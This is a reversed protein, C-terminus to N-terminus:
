SAAQQWDQLSVANNARQFKGSSVAAQVGALYADQARAAQQNPAVQVRMVGQKYQEVAGATRTAWLQGLNSTDKMSFGKNKTVSRVTPTGKRAGYPALVVARM